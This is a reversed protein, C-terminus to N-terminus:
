SRHLSPTRGAGGERQGGGGVKHAAGHQRYNGSYALHFVARGREEVNSRALLFRQRWPLGWPGGRAARCLHPGMQVEKEGVAGGWKTCLFAFCCLAPARATAHGGSYETCLLLFINDKLATQPIWSTSYQIHFNSCLTDCDAVCCQVCKRRRVGGM